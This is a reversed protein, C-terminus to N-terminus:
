ACSGDTKTRVQASIRGGDHEHEAADLIGVCEDFRAVQLTIDPDTSASSGDIAHVPLPMMNHASLGTQVPHPGNVTQEAIRLLACVGRNIEPLAPGLSHFSEDEHRFCRRM